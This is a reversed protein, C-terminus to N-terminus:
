GRLIVRNAIFTGNSYYGLVAVQEGQTPTAGTPLITTGNKLDIYRMRGARGLVQLRYPQFGAVTGLIVHRRDFVYQDWEPQWANYVPVGNANFTQALAPGMTSAGTALTAALAFLSVATNKM